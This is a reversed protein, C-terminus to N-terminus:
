DKITDINVGLMHLDEGRQVETSTEGLWGNEQNVGNYVKVFDIGPLNAPNGDKDIAWDIDIASGDGQNPQNDVYGYRYGYLVFYVGGSNIGPNFKGEDVANEALRIGKFTMKDEKIWGPYYSQKHYVNKIKYGSHNKNDKWRIYDKIITFALPNDPEAYIEPEEKAPRYYTMEYDRYVNVNNGNDKAITYWPENRASFNGSGKIECWEDEDPKGNKNKDYAVMIIGPECSGGFPAGPRKNDNAGFANGNIRFDRKGEVNIITHDFGFTVYGGWGGLTIMFADEGVIWEGAKRVMDEYTDGRAYEPLKNVFQGPAPRYDFVRAIYPSPSKPLNVVEIQVIESIVNDSSVELTYSGPEAAVFMPEKENTLSIRYLESPAKIISLKLDQPISEFSTFDFLLVNYATTKIDQTKIEVAISIQKEFSGNENTVKLTLIYNGPQAAKFTYEPTDAVEKGNLTWSYAVQTDSAVSPRLVLGIGPAIEYKENINSIAPALGKEIVTILIEKQTTGGKNTAKLVLKYGGTKEANFTYESKSAVSKGDLLWDIAINGSGTIEPKLLLDTEVTVAYEEKLGTIFPPEDKKLVKITIRKQDSGGKNTATFMITYDGTVSALFTYGSATSVEKGDLMWRYSVGEKNDITPMLPLKDGEVVAYEAELGSIVPAAPLIEDKNCSSILMAFLFLFLSTKQKM